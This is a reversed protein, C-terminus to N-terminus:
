LLTPAVTFATIESHDRDLTAEVERCVSRVMAVELLERAVATAGWLFPLYLSILM